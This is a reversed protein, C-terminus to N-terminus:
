IPYVVTPFFLEDGFLGVFYHQQGECDAFFRLMAEPPSPSPSKCIKSYTQCM